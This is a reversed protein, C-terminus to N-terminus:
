ACFFIFDRGLFGSYYFLKLATKTNVANKKFISTRHLWAPQLQLLQLLLGWKGTCGSKKRWDEEDRDECATDGSRSASLIQVKREPTSLNCKIHEALSSYDPGTALDLFPYISPKMWEPTLVPSEWYSKYLLVIKFLLPFQLFVPLFILLRRKRSVKIQQVTLSYPGRRNWWQDWGEEVQVTNHAEANLVPHNQDRIFLVKMYKWKWAAM